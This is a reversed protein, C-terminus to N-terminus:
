EFKIQLEAQARRFLNRGRLCAVVKRIVFVYNKAEELDIRNRKQHILGNRVEISELVTDIDTADIGIREANARLMVQVGLRLGTREVLKDILKSDLQSSDNVDAIVKSLGGKVVLMAELAIVAEIVALRGNQQELHHLSNAILVDVVSAKKGDNLFSEVFTEVKRWENVDVGDMFHSRFQMMLSRQNVSLKQWGDTPHLWQARLDDLVFQLNKQANFGDPTQPELWCQQGLNRFYEVMGNHVEYALEVFEAVHRRSNETWDNRELSKLLTPEPKTDLIEITLGKCMLAPQKLLEEQTTPIKSFYELQRTRDSMFVNISYRPKDFTLHLGTSETEPLFGYLVITGTFALDLRIKLSNM